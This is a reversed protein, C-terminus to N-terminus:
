GGTRPTSASRCSSRRPDRGRRSASPGRSERVDAGVALALRDGVQHLHFRALLERRHEGHLLEVILAEDHHARALARDLLGLQRRERVRAGAADDGHADFFAVRHDVHLQRVALALDEDAGPVALRDAEDFAVDARHAAGGVAHAADLQALVVLDHRHLDGLGAARQQRDGLLAVRLVRQDVFVADGAAAAQADLVDLDRVLVARDHGDGLDVGVFLQQDHGLLAFDQARRGVLNAGDAAGRLAHPQHIELALVLDHRDREDFRCSRFFARGVAFRRRRSFFRWGDVPSM